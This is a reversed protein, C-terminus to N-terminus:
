SVSLRPPTDLLLHKKSRNKNLSVNVPSAGLGVIAGYIARAYPPVSVGSM